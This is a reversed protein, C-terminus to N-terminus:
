QPSREEPLIQPLTFRLLRGADRDAVYVSGDPAVAIGSPSNLSAPDSGTGGWRLISVGLLTTASVQHRQPVSVYVQGAASVAISPDDYTGPQWGNVIWTALPLPSIVGDTGQEFVQVRSNWTDAVYINGRADVALGTPENFSGPGSGATGWQYQYDGESDTVVIRKNGTDAVYVNGEKDVAIGRPGFFGLPNAENEERSGDTITAVRGNGMDQSGSGWSALWRGTPSLKVVRANWTDAVYLNDDADVALGRPENFEGQGSGFSGITRVLEGDSTFVKIRHNQTDALYVIGQSDVVVGTPGVIDGAGGIIQNSVLRLTTSGTSGSITVGGVLDSRLWVEMDRSGPQLPDPLKRFLLFQITSEWNSRLLPWVLPTLPTHLENVIAPANACGVPPEKYVDDRSTWANFYFRKYGPSDPACKDGEPFWWNFVGTEGYPQVYHQQLFDRTASTVHPKFLLLVPALGTSGDPLQVEFTQMDAERLEDASKWSINQFDRFYWQLPWALSGNGENDGNSIIVPMSLGGAVDQANRHSRTQNIALKEIEEVYRPVDPSTQTYVLLEVPTDPHTYVALWTARIMYIGLLASLTLASVALTTRVGIQTSITLLAYLMGGFMILPILSQLLNIQGTQGEGGAYLRWLAVGLSILLFLVAPPVLFLLWRQAETAVPGDAPREQEARGFSPLLRLLQALAWAVLLNGPLAMHTVLWPMKEGAWSFIVVASFYWVVLLLPFLNGTPVLTLSDRGAVAMSSRPELSITKTQALMQEQDARNGGKNRRGHEQEAPQGNQQSDASDPTPEDQQRDFLRDVRPVARLFLYIASGISCVVGLPEYIALQALYYYWPQDGRAYAQQSGLWYALGAYLGDLAGRPYAFFTTYMVLYLGALIGLATWLTRKEHQWLQTLRPIVIPQAPWVQAALWSLLVVTAVLFMKEGLYLGEGVPLPPNLVIFVTCIALVAAVGRNLYRRYSSECILRFLMLFGFIFFLIYYLEHTGVALALSAALLYLYGARGTDLYRITGIVMWLEWLVMLGDHRAFRTFYLLAPSFGLLVAALLAGRRGLYPRLMWCSAVLGIGALAMPLRAQADGDGFLFFSFLTLIYLSPGHYVPDYCYTQFTSGGYCTFGGQGTYFKWSSWAHISEDHHMAMTGLGWLHAIISLTVVLLYAIIEYNVRSLDLTRDFLSRPQSSSLTEVAM